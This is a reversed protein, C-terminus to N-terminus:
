AGVVETIKAKIRHQQGLNSLRFMYGEQLMWGGLGMGRLIVTDGKGNIIATGKQKLFGQGQIYLNVSLFAILILLIKKM